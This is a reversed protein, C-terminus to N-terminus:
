NKVFAWMKASRSSWNESKELDSPFICGHTLQAFQNGVNSGYDQIIIPNCNKKKWMKVKEEELSHFTIISVVGNKAVINALTDLASSLSVLEGNVEIRLAQFCKKIYKISEAPNGCSVSIIQLYDDVTTITGHKKRFLSINNVIRSPNSIQGYHKFIKTLRERSGYNLIDVGSEGITSDMRMDLFSNANRFSFGRSEDMLQFTSLGLDFVIGDVKGIGNKELYNQINAFNSKVITFRSDEKELKRGREISEDDIDFAILRGNEDLNDLIIKSHGGGGFTADVYIGGKKRVVYKVVEEGMVPIHQLVPPTMHPRIVLRNWSQRFKRDFQNNRSRSFQKPRRGMKQINRKGM